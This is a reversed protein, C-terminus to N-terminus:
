CVQDVIRKKILIKERFTPDEDHDFRWHCNKCLGVLNSKQNIDRVLTGDPFDKIPRIHCADIAWDYNCNLCRDWGWRSKKEIADTRVHHLSWKQNRNFIGAERKIYHANNYSASCSKNCFYRGSTNRKSARKKLQKGCHSCPVQFSNIKSRNEACCKTSCFVKDSYGRKRRQNM